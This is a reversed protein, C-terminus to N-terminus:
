RHQRALVGALFRQVLTCRRHSLCSGEPTGGALGKYRTVGFGRGTTGLRLGQHASRPSMASGTQATSLRYVIDASQHGKCAQVVHCCLLLAQEVEVCWMAHQTGHQTRGMSHADWTAHTGHQMRGMNHVDWKTHTRHQTRGM